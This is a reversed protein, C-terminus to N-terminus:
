KSIYTGTVPIIHTTNAYLTANEEEKNTSTLQVEIDFNDAGVNLIEYTGNYYISDEITISDGVTFNHNSTTIVNTYAKDKEERHSEKSM